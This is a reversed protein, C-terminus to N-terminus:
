KRIWGIIMPLSFACARPPTKPCTMAACSLPRRATRRRLYNALFKSFIPSRSPNRSVASIAADLQHNAMGPLGLSTLMVLKIHRNPWQEHIRQALDFGSMAPMQPDILAFDFSQQEELRELIELALAASELTVARIGCKSLTPSLIRRTAPNKGNM